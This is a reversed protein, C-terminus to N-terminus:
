GSRWRPLRSVAEGLSKALRGGFMPLVNHEIQEVFSLWQALVGEEDEEILRVSEVVDVILIARVRRAVHRSSSARVSPMVAEVGEHGEGKQRRRHVSLM